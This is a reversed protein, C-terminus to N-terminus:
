AAARRDPSLVGAAVARGYAATVAAYTMGLRDAIQRRTHGEARLLEYDAVFDAQARQAAPHMDLSGTRWARNYCSHCLGRASVPREPHCAAPRACVLVLRPRHQDSLIRRAAAEFAALHDRLDM